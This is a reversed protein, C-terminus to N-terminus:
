WKAKSYHIASFDVPIVVVRRRPQWLLLCITCSGFINMCNPMSYVFLSHWVRTRVGKGWAIVVPFDIALPKGGRRIRLILVATIGLTALLIIPV